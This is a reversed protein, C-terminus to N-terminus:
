YMYHVYNVRNISQFLVLFRAHKVRRKAIAYTTIVLVINKKDIKRLFGVIISFQYIIIEILNCM